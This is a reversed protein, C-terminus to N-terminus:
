APLAPELRPIVGLQLRGFAHFIPSDVNDASFNINKRRLLASIAFCLVGKKLERM